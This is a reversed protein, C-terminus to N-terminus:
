LLAVLYANGPPRLPLDQGFPLGAKIAAAYDLWNLADGQYAASYALSRDPAAQWFLLRLVLAFLFM